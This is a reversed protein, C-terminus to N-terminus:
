GLETDDPEDTLTGALHALLVTIAGIGILLTGGTAASDTVGTVFTQGGVVVYLGGIWTTARRGSVAGRWLLAAGVLVAAIGTGIEELDDAVSVVAIIAALHGVVVFPTATGIYGGRELRRSVLLYAVAFLASVLAIETPDPTDFGDSGFPSDESGFPLLGIGLLDFPASFVGTVQELLFWWVALLSGGLLFPHGRSPGVVYAVGWGVAALALVADISVPPFSSEDLTAFGIFFPLAIAFAVLGATALPGRRQKALLGYGAVVVFLSLLTGPLNSGSGDDGGSSADFAITMFGSFVLVAGAAAATTGLRPQGRRRALPGMGALLGAGPPEDAADAATSTSEDM